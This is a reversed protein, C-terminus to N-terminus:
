FIRMILWPMVTINQHLGSYLRTKHQYFKKALDSAVGIYNTTHNKKTM